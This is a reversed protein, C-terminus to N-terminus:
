GGCQDGQDLLGLADGDGIGRRGVVRGLSLVGQEGDDFGVGDPFVPDPV